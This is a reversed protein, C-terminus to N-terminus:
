PYLSLFISPSFIEVIVTGNIFSVEEIASFLPKTRYAEWIACLNFGVPLLCMHLTFSFDEVWIAVVEVAFIVHWLFVAFSHVNPSNVVCFVFALKLFVSQLTLGTYMEGWVFVKETPDFVALAIPLSSIRILIAVREIAFPFVVQLEDPMVLELVSILEFTLELVVLQVKTYKFVDVPLRIFAFESVTVPM